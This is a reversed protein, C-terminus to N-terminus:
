SPFDLTAAIFGALILCYALALPASQPGAGLWSGAFALGTILEVLLYRAAISAGCHACKGRLYLWTFFLYLPMFAVAPIPRLAEITPATVDELIPSLGLVTGVLIGIVTALAGASNLQPLGAALATMMAFM